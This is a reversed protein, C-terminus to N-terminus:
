IYVNCEHWIYTDKQIIDPQAQFSVYPHQSEEREWLSVALHLFSPFVNGLDEKKVRM